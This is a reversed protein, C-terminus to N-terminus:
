TWEMFKDYGVVKPVRRGGETTRMHVVERKSESGISVHLPRGRGYFYLRDFNTNIVIWQVVELMDEDPVIFDVAAGLRLCIPNGRTNLEHAAHQDRKPDINRPVVKALERSCFGYTLEIGGFYDMVPDIVEIALRALAAYTEPRQPVNGVGIKAQTEGCEIFDRYTHYKGCAEDIDPLESVARLQFGHVELRYRDLITHLRQPSPSYGSLDLLRLHSLQRDFEVQDTYNPFDETVYRSKEYLYPPEYEEGYEFVQIDQRRFNLKVRELLRPLPANDFDYYSMLSLKGSESHIRLLDASTVDGYLQSGCGVYVRLVAPLQEVLSTHLTLGGEEDLFGQGKSTAVECAQRIENPDGASYLLAEVEQRAYRHSGFFAKVDRQLRPPYSTLRRWGNFLEQALYARLDNVRSARADEFLQSGSHREVFSLIRRRSGLIPYLDRFESVEDEEPPRGLELWANVLRDLQERNEEYLAQDREERSPRPARDRLKRLASRNVLRQEKVRDAEAPDKFILFVGPAVALPENGLANDLLQRIEDQEFYKQFTGRSTLLGDAYRRGARRNDRALMVAVSLVRSAYAFADQLVAAREDQTEIVNIVFGLNVIDAMERPTEPAYYPDWGVANVGNEQLFRVDDGRGCGYDLIRLSADLYGLKLLAQFPSSLSSRSIATRYRLVGTGEDATPPPISGDLRRLEHGEVAFGAEELRLTWQRHYGYAGANNLLGFRDLADTLDAFGERRRDDPSLLLEKRHLIPQNAAEPYVRERIQGTSLSVTVSRSLRPFPEDFFEPYHLLSVVDSSPQLKAVNWLNDPLYQAARQVRDCESASLAALADRHIYRKGRVFKGVPSEGDDM